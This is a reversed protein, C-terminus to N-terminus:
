AARNVRATETLRGARNHGSQSSSTVNRRRRGVNRIHSPHKCSTRSDARSSAYASRRMLLGVHRRGGARKATRDHASALPTTAPASMIQPQPEPPWECATSWVDALCAPRVSRIATAAEEHALPQDAGAGPAYANATALSDLWVAVTASTSNPLPTTTPRTASARGPAIPDAASPWDM